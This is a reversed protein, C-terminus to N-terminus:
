RRCSHRPWDPLALLDLDGCGCLRRVDKRVFWLEVHLALLRTLGRVVSRPSFLVPAPGAGSKDRATRLLM